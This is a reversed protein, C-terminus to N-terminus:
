HEVHFVCTRMEIAKNWTFCDRSPSRLNDENWTSCNEVFQDRTAGRTNWMSCEQKICVGIGVWGHEVHFM